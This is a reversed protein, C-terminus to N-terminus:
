PPVTDSPGRRHVVIDVDGCQMFLTNLGLEEAAALLLLAERTFVEINKKRNNMLSQALAQTEPGGPAAMGEIDLGM